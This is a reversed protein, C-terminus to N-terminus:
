ESAGQLAARPSRAGGESFSEIVPALVRESADVSVGVGNRHRERVPAGFSGDQHGGGVKWVTRRQSDSEPLLTRDGPQGSVHRARAHGAHLVLACPPTQGTVSREKGLRHGTRSRRKWTAWDTALPVMEEGWRLM